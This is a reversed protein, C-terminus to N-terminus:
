LLTTAKLLSFTAFVATCAVINVNDINVNDININDINVQKGFSACGRNMHRDKGTQKTPPLFSYAFLYKCYKETNRGNQVCSWPEASGPSPKTTCHLQTARNTGGVELDVQICRRDVRTLNVGHRAM